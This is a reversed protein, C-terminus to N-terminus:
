NDFFYVLRCKVETNIPQDLLMQESELELKYKKVKETATNILETYTKDWHVPEDLKVGSNICIEIFDDLDHYSHSHADIDWKDSALKIVDSVDEPLGKPEPGSGRVGALNAFLRYNRSGFAKVWSYGDEEYPEHFKDAKWPADGVKYEIHIHIDCGM